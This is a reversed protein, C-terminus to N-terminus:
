PMSGAAGTRAGNRLAEIEAIAKIHAAAFEYYDIQLRLYTAEAALVSDFSGRGTQYTTLASEVALRAQPVLVQDHFAIQENATQLAAAAKALDRTLTRRLEEIRFRAADRLAIAERIRPEVTTNRRLPLEISGVVSFVDRETRRHGYSAEVSVDPRAQLRALRILEEQLAVQAELAAIAPHSAPLTPSREIAASSTEHVLAVRGVTTSVPLGLSAVLGAAISARQGRLTLLQHDLESRELQARLVEAQASTGIEYRVRAADTIANVLERVQEIAAIQSDTAALDSWVFRADRAIEARMSAIELEVARAELEAVSRRAERKARREFTQSAGVMYMTMMQDDSLDIQKDQLGAMLMPNPHSAAPTVRERAAALESELRQIAPNSALAADVVSQIDNWELARATTSTLALALACTVQRLFM